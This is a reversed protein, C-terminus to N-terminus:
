ISHQYSLLLRAKRTHHEAAKEICQCQEVKINPLSIMTPVQSVPLQECRMTM